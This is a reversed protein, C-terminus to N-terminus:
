TCNARVRKFAAAVMEDFHNRQIDRAASRAALRAANRAANRAASRAAEWAATRAADAASRADDRAAVSAAVSAADRKTEDGTELYERVIPPADWLHIVQLACWRAFDGLLPEADITAIVRRRRCVGKDKQEEVIGDVEVLHLLNGPAYRLADFPDRSFHLGSECIKVEGDYELWEGIAPLPRGDRLRAATFHYATKKPENNM